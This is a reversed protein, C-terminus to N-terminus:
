VSLTCIHLGWLTIKIVSDSGGEWATKPRGMNPKGMSSRSVTENVTNIPDVSMIKQLKLLLINKLAYQESIHLGSFWDLVKEIINCAPHTMLM